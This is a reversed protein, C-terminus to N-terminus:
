RAIADLIERVTAATERAPEPAPARLIPGAIAELEPEAGAIRDTLMSPQMAAAIAQLRSAIDAADLMVGATAAAAVAEGILRALREPRRERAEGLPANEATCLLAMPALVALKAWLVHAEGAAQEVPFGAGAFLEAVADAGPAAPLVVDAHPSGQVAEGPAVATVQVLIAAPVVRATPYAARLLAVHDIGNLFPVVFADGVTGPPCRALADLLGTAKVTVLLVDVPEVLSTRVNPQADLVDDGHRLRVGGVLLAAATRERAVLTVDHGARALRAAALLGVGGPGLVAVSAV